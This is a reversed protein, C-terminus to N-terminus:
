PVQGLDLVVDDEADEGVMQPQRDLLAAEFGISV